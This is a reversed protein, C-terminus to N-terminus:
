LHEEIKFNKFDIDVANSHSVKKTPLPEDSQADAPQPEAEEVAVVPAHIETYDDAEAELMAADDPNFLGCHVQMWAIGAALRARFYELRNATFGKLGEDDSPLKLNQLKACYIDLNIEIDSLESKFIYESPTQPTWGQSKELRLSELEREADRLKDEAVNLLTENRSAKKEANTRATRERKLDDLLQDPNRSDGPPLDPFTMNIQEFSCSGIARVRRRSRAGKLHGSKSQAVYVALKVDFESYGAKEMIVWYTDDEHYRAWQFLQGARELHSLAADMHIGIETLAANRDYKRLALDEPIGLKTMDAVLAAQPLNDM